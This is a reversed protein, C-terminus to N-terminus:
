GASYGVLHGVLFTVGAGVGALLLQRLASRVYSRGTFHALLGGVLLTAVGAAVVSGVIGATGTTFFWALLPIVAGVAFAVFSSISAQWPSGISDLSVGLEEQAHVSLAVAPDRMMYESVQEALERPVGRREYIRALERTEAAGHREIESAEISIEREFLERQARMSVYEGLAMSFAGGVLGALGALRVLSATPHAGAVGLILSVNSILGDSVGFVAARAAGGSIDRHDLHGPAEPSDSSINKMAPLPPDSRHIWATIGFRTASM